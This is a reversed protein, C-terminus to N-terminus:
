TIRGNARLRDVVDVFFQAQRAATPYRTAPLSVFAVASGKAEFGPPTRQLRLFSILLLSSGVSLVVSLASEGVNRTSRFRAVHRSSSGRATDNLGEVLHTGSAHLAPAVGVLLATVLTVTGTFILARWNLTLTTSPPLQSAVLSQVASLAWMAALVGLL